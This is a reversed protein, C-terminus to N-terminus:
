LFKASKEKEESERREGVSEFSKEKDEEGNGRGSATGM